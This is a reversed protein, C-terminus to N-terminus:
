RHEQLTLGDRGAVIKAINDASEPDKEPNFYNSHAPTAGQGDVFPRAGEDVKFRTAGFDAHAPDTGFWIQSEDESSRFGAIGGVVSGAAAGVLGGAPGGMGLGLVLGASGGGAVGAGLASSEDRSPMMTVPDNDAAGVYVHGQGVGLGKASDAGTGPSGLLVIDDAGPIGGSQQAAQGVTFSGYSHGIATVHPDANQNTASIGAMFTNYTDAGASANHEFMVDANDTLKEAPLQPADYGLWVIAASSEDYAAAGVATDRARKVDNKAFSEDLATGLGPVYASVNRATDPNGFSVIARGNGQDGIGLLYMPPVGEAPDARLQADISKLGDLQTQAKESNQGELKGILLRLSDRNAADRTEAPIGDLNGIVDPYVARYEERQEQTLGVWWARCEAPSKDQPINDKLYDDAVDRVAAADAAADTWTKTDVTLGPAAKLKALTESFRRDTERAENVAKLIRNAIDQAKAHNPNPPALPPAGSSAGLSPAYTGTASGGPLRTGDIINEGGAPYSVSGDPHVTFKLNVAEELAGRLYTQSDSLEFALSNLTTRILGCETYLYEFNRDLQKLRRLAASAAEGKQSTALRNTMENSVRDRAADARNSVVGWGDAADQLESYKLDRLQQWTLVATM